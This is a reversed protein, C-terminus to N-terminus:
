VYCKKLFIPWNNNLMTDIFLLFFLDDDMRNTIWGTVMSVINFLLPGNKKKFKRTFLAEYM